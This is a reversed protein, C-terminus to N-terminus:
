VSRALTLVFINNARAKMLEKACEEVTSGTTFIDDLILFIKGM